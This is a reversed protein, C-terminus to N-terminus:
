KERVKLNPDQLLTNGRGLPKGEPRTYRYQDDAAYVQTMAYGMVTANFDAVEKEDFEVVDEDGEMRGILAVNSSLPFLVDRDSLGLRPAYQNGYNVGGPRHICVPHDTTVFGGSGEKAKAIRWKRANFYWYLREMAELEMELSFNQHAEVKDINDEVFKKYGEFDSPQDEPWKGAAKMAEVVAEWKAQDEFPAALIARFIETYFKQMDRRTRTNRTALLTILNIVDERDKGEEGFTATERIRKIGPAIVGELKSLEHELADPPVGQAEILNFDRQAAIRGPKASFPKRREADVVFCRGKRGVFGELYMQPVYHHKRATERSSKPVAIGVGVNESNAAHYLIVMISALSLVCLTEIRPAKRAKAPL